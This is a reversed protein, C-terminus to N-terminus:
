SRSEEIPELDDQLEGDEHTAIRLLTAPQDTTRLRIAVGFPVFVTTPQGFSLHDESNFSPSDTRMDLMNVEVEGEILTWVEDAIWRVSKEMETGPLLRVLEVQGFRRLLHDSFRLVPWRITGTEDIISIPRIVLDHIAMSGKM